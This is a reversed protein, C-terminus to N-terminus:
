KIIISSQRSDWVIKIGKRETDFLKKKNNDEWFFDDYDFYLPIRLENIILFRNTRERALTEERETYFLELQCENLNQSYYAFFLAQSLDPMSDLYSYLAGEISDNIYYVIPSSFTKDLSAPENHPSSDFRHIKKNRIVFEYGHFITFVRKILGERHGAEGPISLAQESTLSYDDYDLVIPYYNGRIRFFRNSLRAIGSWHDNRDLTCCSIILGQSDRSDKRIRFYVSDQNDRSLSRVWHLAKRESNKPLQYVIPQLSFIISFLIIFVPKM